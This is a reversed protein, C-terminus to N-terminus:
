FFIEAWINCKKKGRFNIFYVWSWYLQKYDVKTGPINYVIQSNCTYYLESNLVTDIVRYMATIKQKQKYSNGVIM